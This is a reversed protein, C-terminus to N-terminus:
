FTGSESIYSFILVKKLPNLFHALYSNKCFTKYYINLLTRFTGRTRFISRTRFIGLNQSFRERFVLFVTKLFIYSLETEQFNSSSTKLFYSFSEWLVKKLFFYFLNKLPSLSSLASPLEMIVWKTIGSVSQSVVTNSKTIGSM